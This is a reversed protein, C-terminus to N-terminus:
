WEEGMLLWISGVTVREVNEPSGVILEGLGDGDLDGASELVSGFHVNDTAGSVVGAADSLPLTGTLPGAMVYLWGEEKPGAGPAGIILEDRGDNGLDGVVALAEGTRDAARSSVVTARADEIGRSGSFPGALVWVVSPGGGLTGVALDTHGDGDFDGSAMPGDFSAGVSGSWWGTLGDGGTVTGVPPASVLGVGRGGESLDQAPLSVLLDDVGDGDLDNGGHLTAGLETWSSDGVLKDPLDTPALDGRSSGAAFYVVGVGDVGLVAGQPAGMAFDDLGDGDLDPVSALAQGLCPDTSVCSVRLVADSPSIHSSMPGLFLYLRGGQGGEGTGVLLDGIGDGDADDLGRVVSGFALDAEDGLLTAVPIRAASEVGGRGSDNVYVAGGGGVGGDVGSAGSVIEGEGSGDQDGLGGVAVGLNDYRHDGYLQVWDGDSTGTCPWRSRDCDDDSSNLCEEIAGPYVESNSDNCDAGNSVLGPASACNITTEGSAGFGDGDGDEYRLVGDIADDDVMGDCDQDVYDCVEPNGPYTDANADDCDGSIRAGGPIPTCSHGLPESRGWGDGDDDRWWVPAEAQEDIEGNCNDDVGDCREVAGPNTSSDHDDCDGAVRAWYAGPTCRRMAGAPVGYNDRDGDPYWLTTGDEDVLGDCDGDVGDCAELAGPYVTSDRDDCDGPIGSTHAPALCARAVVVQGGVGDGDADIYWDAEPCRVGCGLPLSLTALAAVAACLHLLPTRLCLVVACSMSYGITARGPIDNGLHPGAQLRRPGGLSLGLLPEGPTGFLDAAGEAQRGIVRGAM